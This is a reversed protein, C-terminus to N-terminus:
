SAARPFEYVGRAGARRQPRRSEDGEEGAPLRLAASLRAYAIRLQRAEVLAPHPRPQGFRDALIEGEDEVLAALRDLTDVTRCMEVLLGREHEELEYESQVARWLRRGSRKLEKPATPIKSNSPM